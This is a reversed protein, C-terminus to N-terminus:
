AEIIPAVVSNRFSSPMAKSGALLVSNTAMDSTPLPMSSMALSPLYSLPPRLSM